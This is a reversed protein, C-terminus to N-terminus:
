VDDGSNAVVTPAAPAFVDDSGALLKPTGPGGALFTL